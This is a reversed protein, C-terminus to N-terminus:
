KHAKKGVPIDISIEGYIVAHNSKLNCAQSSCFYNTQRPNYQSIDSSIEVCIVIQCQYIAYRCFFTLNISM